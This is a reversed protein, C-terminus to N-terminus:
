VKGPKSSESAEKEAKTSVSMLDRDGRVGYYEGSAIQLSVAAILFLSTKMNNISKNTLSLLHSILNSNSHECPRNVLQIILDPQLLHPHKSAITTSALTAMRSARGRESTGPAKSPM